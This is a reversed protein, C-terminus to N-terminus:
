AVGGGGWGGRISSPPYAGGRALWVEHLDCGMYAVGMYAVGTYAVGRTLWVGHLGCRMYAVGM